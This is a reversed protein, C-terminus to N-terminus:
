KRTNNPKYYASTATYMQLLIISHLTLHIWKKYNYELVMALLNWTFNYTSMQSVLSHYIEVFYFKTDRITLKFTNYCFFIGQKSLVTLNQGVLSSKFTQTGSFSDQALFLTIWQVSDTYSQSRKGICLNNSSWLKKYKILLKLWTPNRHKWLPFHTM